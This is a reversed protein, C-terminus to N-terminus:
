NAAAAPSARWHVQGFLLSFLTTQIAKIEKRLCSEASRGSSCSPVIDTWFFGMYLSFVSFMICLFECFRRKLSAFRSTYMDQGAISQIVYILAIVCLVASTIRWVTRCCCKM